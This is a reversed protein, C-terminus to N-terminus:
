RAAPLRPGQSRSGEACACGRGEAQEAEALVARLHLAAHERCADLSAERRFSPASASARVRTGDQAVLDLSILGRHLLVGLVDTFLKDFAAAHRVRFENLTTRGVHQDGVIWQFAVDTSQLREVERGSGVGRSIAYLWLTLLMRVSTQARGQRGEVAKAKALFASLDLTEVVRWLLRAPHQEPLTQDPIEFRIVGQARQPERTRIRRSSVGRVHVL